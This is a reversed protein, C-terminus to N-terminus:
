VDAELAAFLDKAEYGSVKIHKGNSGQVHFVDHENSSGFRLRRCDEGRAPVIWEALLGRQQPSLGAVPLDMIFETRAIENGALLAAKPDLFLQLFM